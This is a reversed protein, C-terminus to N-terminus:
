KSMEALGGALSDAIAVSVQSFESPSMNARVELSGPVEKILEQISTVSSPIPISAAVERIIRGEMSFLVLSLGMFKGVTSDGQCRVKLNAEKMKGANDFTGELAPSVAATIDGM